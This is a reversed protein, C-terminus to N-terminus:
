VKKEAEAIAWEASDFAELQAYSTPLCKSVLTERMNKAEWLLDKLAELMDQSLRHLRRLEQAAEECEPPTDEFMQELEEALEPAKTNTM